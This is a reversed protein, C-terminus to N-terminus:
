GLGDRRRAQQEEGNLDHGVTNGAGIYQDPTENQVVLDHSVNDNCITISGTGNQVSLDHGVTSGCVTGGNPGNESVDHGFSVGNANLTGGKQVTTDHTVSTGPLLTCTAGGPVVVDKGTGTYFGNCTTTGPNLQMATACPGSSSLEWPSFSFAGTGGISSGTGGPNGSTTPGTASGWWNCTADFTGSYNEIQVNYPM